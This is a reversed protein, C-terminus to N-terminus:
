CGKQLPRQSSSISPSSSSSPRSTIAISNLDLRKRLRRLQRPNHRGKEEKWSARLLQPLQQAGVRRRREPGAGWRASSAFVLAIFDVSATGAGRRRLVLDRTRTKAEKAGPFQPPGVRVALCYLTKQVVRPGDPGRSRYSRFGPASRFRVRGTPPTPEGPLWLPPDVAGFGLAGGPPYPLTAAVSWRRRFSRYTPLTAPARGPPHPSPSYRQPPGIGTGLSSQGCNRCRNYPVSSGATDVSPRTPTPRFAQAV